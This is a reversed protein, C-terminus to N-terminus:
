AFLKMAPEGDNAIKFPRRSPSFFEQKLPLGLAYAITANFDPVLMLNEEVVRGKPDTKGFKIGGKIGGGALL